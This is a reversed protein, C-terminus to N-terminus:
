VRACVASGQRTAPQRYQGDEGRGEGRGGGEGGAQMVTGMEGGRGGAWGGPVGRMITDAAVKEVIERMLLKPCDLPVTISVECSLQEPDVGAQTAELGGSGKSGRKAASAPAPSPSAEAGEGEGEEGEAGGEGASALTLAPPM